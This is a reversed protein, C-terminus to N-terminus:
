ENETGTLPLLQMVEIISAHERAVMKRDGHPTLTADFLRNKREAINLIKQGRSPYSNCGSVIGIRSFKRRLNETGTLPLLQM